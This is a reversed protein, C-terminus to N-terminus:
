KPYPIPAKPDPLAIPGHSSGLRPLGDWGKVINPKTTM